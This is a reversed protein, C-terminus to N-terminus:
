RVKLIKQQQLSLRWNPHYKIFEVCRNMIEANTRLFGTDCPQIYYYDAEIREFSRIAEVSIKETMVVKVETCKKIIVEANELFPSKPSVTVYDIGDTVPKTGNTELCVQMGEHHIADILSQELQLTPEGGTIVCLRPLPNMGLVEYIRSIIEDVELSDYSQFDTDCFPCKLNCGSLRIFVAARGANIGEGQLSHFIENVRYKM